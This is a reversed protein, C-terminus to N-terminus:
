LDLVVKDTKPQSICILVSGEDPENTTPETYEVEGEQIACMCTLCIGQRCSYPPNIGNNEAFELITGDGSNWTLTKGSQVFVIEASDVKGNNSFTNKTESKTSAGKSFSELFVREQPVGLESLGERIADMFSPSGCLFYEADTSGYIQKIQPLISTEILQKDVYGQSHYMGEDEPRPRSYKYHVQLNSNDAIANVEQCFAHYDGNRAGHLFWLNRRSNGQTCAKAM